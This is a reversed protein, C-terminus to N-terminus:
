KSLKKPENNYHLFYKGEINLDKHFHGFHWEKFITKNNIINLYKKFNREEDADNNINLLFKRIKEYILEPCTHTLIFDVKYNYLELFKLGYDCEAKSPIEQKWWSVYNIRHIRDVSSAGGFTFLICNNINYIHGRKLYFIHDSIRKVTSNFYQVDPFEMWKDYPAFLRDFNCHNGDIFLTTWPYNDYIDIIEQEKINKQWILGSDGLIIVYDDKTLFKGKEWNNLKENDIIGHTDGCVFIM